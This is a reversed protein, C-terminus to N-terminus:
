SLHTMRPSRRKAKKELGTPVSEPEPKSLSNDNSSTDSQHHSGNPVSAASKLRLRGNSSKRERKVPEPSLPGHKSENLM